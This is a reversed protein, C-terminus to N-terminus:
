DPREFAMNDILRTKELWAAVLLRLRRSDDTPPALTEADRLSLYEVRFGGETLRAISKRLLAEEQRDAGACESLAQLTDRLVEPLLAARRRADEDLYRNRSSMALGDAERVTPAALITVPINLDRVLQRIVCLQQYDKEGFVAIDPQCALLLKTVVLAVGNFFHPRSDSELGTAPGGITIGTAFGAPYMEEQVPLFVSEVGLGALARIDAEADRPYSAFDETPAFQTPNVFISVIVHDANDQAKRVLSLHGEHLAGMTPVLAIRQGQGRATAVADRIESLSTHRRPLTM